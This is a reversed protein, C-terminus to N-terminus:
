RLQKRYRTSADSLAQNPQTSLDNLIAMFVEHDQASLRTIQRDHLIKQSAEALTSIAFDSVTQGMLTAAGEITKKLEGSLQLKLQADRNGNGM